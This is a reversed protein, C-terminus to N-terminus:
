KPLGIYDNIQTKLGLQTMRNFFDDFTKEVFHEDFYDNQLCDCLYIKSQGNTFTIKLRNTYRLFHIESIEDFTYFKDKKVAKTKLIEEANQVYRMAEAKAENNNNIKKM